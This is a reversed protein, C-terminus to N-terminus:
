CSADLREGAGAVWGVGRSTKLVMAEEGLQLLNRTGLQHNPIAGNRGDGAVVKSVHQFSSSDNGHDHDDNTYNADDNNNDKGEM